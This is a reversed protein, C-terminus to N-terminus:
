LEGYLDAFLQRMPFPLVLGSGPLTLIELESVLKLTGDAFVFTGRGDPDLVIINAVGLEAYEFCKTLIEDFTDDPFKIEIVIAPVQTIPGDKVGCPEEVVAICAIRHKPSVGGMRLRTEVFPKIRFLRRLGFLYATVIGQLFGHLKTRLNRRVLVGGVFEVEREYHQASVRGVLVLANVNHRTVPM